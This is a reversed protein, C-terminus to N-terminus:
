TGVGEDEDVVIDLAQLAAEDRWALWGRDALRLEDLRDDFVGRAQRAVDAGVVEAPFRAIAREAVVGAQLREHEGAVDVAARHAEAAAVAQAEVLADDGLVVEIDGRHVGPLVPEAQLVRRYVNQWFSVNV